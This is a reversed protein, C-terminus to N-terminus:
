GNTCLSQIAAILDHLDVRSNDRINNQWNSLHKCMEPNPNQNILFTIYNIQHQTNPQVAHIFAEIAAAGDNWRGLAFSTRIVNQYMSTDDTDSLAAAKKYYTLAELLNGSREYYEGVVYNVVLNNPFLRLSTQLWHLESVPLERDRSVSAAALYHIASAQPLFYEADAIDPQSTLALDYLTSARLNEGALQCWYIGRFAQQAIQEQAWYRAAQVGDDLCIYSAGLYYDILPQRLGHRKAQHLVDIAEHYEQQYYLARGEEILGKASQVSSRNALDVEISSPCQCPKRFHDIPDVLGSESLNKVLFRNYQIANFFGVARTLLLIVLCIVLAAFPLLSLRFTRDM